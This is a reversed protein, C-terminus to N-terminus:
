VEYRTHQILKECASKWKSSKNGEKGVWLHFMFSRENQRQLKKYLVNLRLLPVINGGHLLLKESSEAIITAAAAARDDTYIWLKLELVRSQELMLSHRFLLNLIFSSSLCQYVFFFIIHQHRKIVESRPVRLTAPLCYPHMNFQDSLLSVPLRQVVSHGSVANKMKWTDCLSLVSASSPLCVCVCVCMCVLVTASLGQFNASM